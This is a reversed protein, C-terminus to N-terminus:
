LNYYWLSIFINNLILIRLFIFSKIDFILIMFIKLQRQDHSGSFNDFARRGLCFYLYICVCGMSGPDLVIDMSGPNLVGSMSEAHPWTCWGYSWISYLICDNIPRFIWFIYITISGVVRAGVWKVIGFRPRTGWAPGEGRAIAVWYSVVWGNTDIFQAVKIFMADDRTQYTIVFVGVPWFIERM